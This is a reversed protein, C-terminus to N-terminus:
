QQQFESRIEMLISGLKNKSIWANPDLINRNTLPLGVAFYSDMGSEGLKKTGTNLLVARCDANQEFKAKLIKTVIDGKVINWSHKNFGSVTQGLSKAKSPDETRLIQEASKADKFKVAKCYQIAQEANFFETDGYKFEAKGYNSLSGYESLVGTHSTEHTFITRCPIWPTWTMGRTTSSYLIVM